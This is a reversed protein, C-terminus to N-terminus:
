LMSPGEITAGTLLYCILQLAFIIIGMIVVFGVGGILLTLPLLFIGRLLYGFQELERKQKRIFRGEATYAPGRDSCIHLIFMSALGILLWLVVIIVIVAIVGGM